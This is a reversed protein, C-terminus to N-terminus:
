IITIEKPVSVNKEDGNIKIEIEGYPTPLTMDVKDLGFANPSLKIKKYGAEVIEVGSIAKKLIYAPTGGWAHSCDGNVAEWAECLGKDCKELLSEYKEILSIGYKEFMGNKYLAELLFHYFYPQMDIKKLDCLVYELVNKACEGECIGYLAALVNAQKLYYKRKTNKPLWDGTETLDETNLGGIYLGREKDFLYTNIANKVKEAKEKCLLAKENKGTIGYIKAIVNLANYYFMCLASQGLAKPPHHMSFGELKGHTMMDAGESFMEDSDNVMIWDVFMYNPAYEVLGNEGLYTDFKALLLELSKETDVFISRDGTHM